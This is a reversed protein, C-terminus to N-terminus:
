SHLKRKLHATAAYLLLYALTFPFMALLALTRVAGAGALGARFLAFHRLTRWQSWDLWFYDGNENLILVKAPLRSALMWKWKTMIPQGACVIGCVSYNRAALQRYLRKRAARGQFDTVRFVEGRSPDFAKPLNAYCTVLDLHRLAPLHHAYIGPLLDELLHRSGSEIVLVRDFDPIRRSFFHRV